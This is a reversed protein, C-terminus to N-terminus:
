VVILGNVIFPRVFLFINYSTTHFVSQKSGLGGLLLTSKKTNKREKQNVIAGMQPMIYTDGLTSIICNQLHIHLYTFLIAYLYLKAINQFSFAICFPLVHCRTAEATKATM